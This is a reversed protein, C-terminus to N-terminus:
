VLAVAGIQLKAAMILSFLGMVSINGFSRALRSSASV